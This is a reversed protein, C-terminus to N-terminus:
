LVVKLFRNDKLLYINNEKDLAFNQINKALLWWNIPLRNDVEVVVTEEPYRIILHDLIKPLWGFDLPAGKESLNIKFKEGAMMKFDRRYDELFIIEVEENQNLTAIKKSDPSFRFDKIKESISKLEGKQREYIFMEGKESLLAIRANSKSLSIKTIKETLTPGLAVREVIKRPKVSYFQLNNEQDIFIIESGSTTLASIPALALLELTFNRRDLFYIAKQTAIVAENADFFYPIIQVIPVNGPLKLLKEKLSYFLNKIEKKKSDTLWFKEAEEELVPETSIKEPFLFIKTASSVIGAEVTMNKRWIGSNEKSIEIQYDGPLLGKILDGGNNFLSHNQVYPKGDIKISADGSFTKLFIAGTKRLTFSGDTTQNFSWGMAYFIFGSAALFFGAVLYCIVIKRTKKNM